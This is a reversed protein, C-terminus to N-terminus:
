IQFLSQMQCRQNLGKRSFFGRLNLFNKNFVAYILIVIGMNKGKLLKHILPSCFSSTYCLKRMKCLILSQVKNNALNHYQLPQIQKGCVYFNGNPLLLCHTYLTNSQNSTNIRATNNKLIRMRQVYQIFHFKEM